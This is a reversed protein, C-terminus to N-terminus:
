GGTACAGPSHKKHFELYAPDGPYGWQASWVQLSTEIDRAFFACEGSAASGTKYGTYLAGRGEAGIPEAGTDNWQDRSVPGGFREAYGGRPVGREGLSLERDMERGYGRRPEQKRRVQHGDVFFYHLGHACLFAEIGKRQGATRGSTGPLEQEPRYGCEPLWIGRPDQHFHRRYTAVGQAIQASISTDRILLPLYAHTAASVILEIQGEQQFRSFAGLLDERYTDTFDRLSSEYFALWRAALRSHGSLGGRDFSRVDVIAAQMKERMYGKLESVFLPSALMECLM